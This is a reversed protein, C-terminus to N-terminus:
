ARGKCLYGIHNRASEWSDVIEFGTASLLLRASKDTFYFCHDIKLTQQWGKEAVEQETDLIDVFFLGDSALLGRIKELCSRPELLHDITQCLLILDYDTGWPKWTEFSENAVTFFGDPLQEAAPDIVVAHYGISAIHEAVVGTSGGIDLAVMGFSDGEPLHKILQEAYAKQEAHITAMVDRGHYASVLKRYTGSAYFNSYWEASPRDDLWALGCHPCQAKTSVFGYRDRGVFFQLFGGSCDCQQRGRDNMLPACGVAAIREERSLAPDCWAPLTATTM